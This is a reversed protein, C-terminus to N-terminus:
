ADPNGEDSPSGLCYTTLWPEGCVCDYGGFMNGNSSPRHIGVARDRDEDCFCTIGHPSHEACYNGQQDAPYRGRLHWRWRAVTTSAFRIM